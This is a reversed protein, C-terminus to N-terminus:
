VGSDLSVRRARGESDILIWGSGGGGRATLWWGSEGEDSCCGGWM